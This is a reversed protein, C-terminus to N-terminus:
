TVFTNKKVEYYSAVLSVSRERQVRSFYTRGETERLVLVEDKRWLRFKPTGTVGQVKM